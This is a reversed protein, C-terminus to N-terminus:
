FFYSASDWEFLEFLGKPPDLEDFAVMEGEYGNEKAAEKAIEYHRGEDFAWKECKVKCFYFDSEGNANTAAVVVKHINEM